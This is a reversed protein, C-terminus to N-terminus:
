PLSPVETVIVPQNAELEEPLVRDETLFLEANGHCSDCSANQPTHRQINHPTAYVWTSRADFNPLLDDGYFAFSQPDIPVHRLVVYSWPREESQDPNLGIAFAMESPEVTYYAVGEDSQQVHCSYCHKYPIAHCVQCALEDLHHESHQPNTDAEGGVAAHCDVCAAGAEGDLRHPSEDGEQAAHMEDGGHCSFCAMGNPNYHVDAAYTEGGPTENLGKYEDNVRSGHCGTCTLNMPPTGRFDHGSLLGGGANTPRSVHCQGCSAHCSDCHNDFAEMLQPWAEESSREALVTYYGDLSGHLSSYHDQSLEAHCSGCAELPDPDTTVGEHAGEMDYATSVGGHCDTCAISGHVSDTFEAKVAVKEWAEM